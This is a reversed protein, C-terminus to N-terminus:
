PDSEGFHKAIIALDSGDVVGDNNVDCNVNWIMPPQAGPWSGYCKAVISLDSGDVVGDPVFDWPNESGGTLDGVMSVIVWRDTFNNDATDTEGLVPWAYASITYNGKAFGSTNWTFAM